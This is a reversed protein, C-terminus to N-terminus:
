SQIIDFWIISTMCFCKYAPLVVYYWHASQWPNFPALFYSGPASVSRSGPPSVFPFQKNKFCPCPLASFLFSVPSFRYVLYRCVLFLHSKVPVLVATLVLPLFPSSRVVFQSCVPVSFVSHNTLLFLQPHGFVLSPPPASSQCSPVSSLPSSITFSLGSLSSCLVCITVCGIGSLYQSSGWGAWLEFSKWEEVKSLSM